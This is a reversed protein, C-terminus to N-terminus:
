VIEFNHLSRKSTHTGDAFYVSKETIRTITDAAIWPKAPMRLVTGVTIQAAIAAATANM